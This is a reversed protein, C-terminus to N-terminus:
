WKKYALFELAETGFLGEIAAAVLMSVAAFRDIDADGVCSHRRLSAGDEASYVWVCISRNSGRVVQRNRSATCGFNAAAICLNRPLVPVDPYNAGSHVTKM